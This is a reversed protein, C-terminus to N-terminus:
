KAVHRIAFQARFHSPIRYMGCRALIKGAPKQWPHLVEPGLFLINTERAKQFEAIMGATLRRRQAGLAIRISTQQRERIGRALLLNAINACALLLVCGAASLLITLGGKYGERMEDVGAGGATLYLKQQWIEREQASMDGVHSAQWAHLELRLRAELKGPDTGPRVRGILDLWHQNPMKLRATEGDLLM